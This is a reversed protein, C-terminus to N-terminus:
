YPEYVIELSGQSAYNGRGPYEVRLWFGVRDGPRLAEVFSAGDGTNYAMKQESPDEHGRFWEAVYPETQRIGRPHAFVRWVSSEGNPVLRWGVGAIKSSLEEPSHYIGYLGGAAIVDATDPGPDIPRFISADYWSRPM